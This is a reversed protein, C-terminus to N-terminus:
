LDGGQGFYATVEEPTMVDIVQEAERDWIVSIGEAEPAECPVIIFRDSSM